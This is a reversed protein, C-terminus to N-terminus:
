EGLEFIRKGARKAERKMAAAGGTKYRVYCVLADSNQLMWRNRRLIAFRPPVCVVEAPLLTDTLFQGGSGQREGAKPMYALVAVAQIQPYERCLRCLVGQVMRDFSGQGGVYFVDAKEKEILRRLVEELKPLVSLPTDRHGFFTVKM